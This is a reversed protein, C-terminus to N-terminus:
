YTQVSEANETEGNAFSSKAEHLLGHAKNRMHTAQKEAMQAVDNKLGIAKDRILARRRAGREPDLLYMLGLGAGVGVLIGFLRNM